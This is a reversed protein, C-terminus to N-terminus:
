LFSLFAALLIFAHEICGFRSRLYYDAVEGWAFRRLAPRITKLENFSVLLGWRREFALRSFNLLPHLSVFGVILIEFCHNLRKIM